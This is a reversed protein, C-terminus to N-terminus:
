KNRITIESNKDLKVETIKKDVIVKYPSSYVIEPTSFSYETLQVQITGDDPTKSNLVENGNKDFIRVPVNGLVKGDKDVVKVTLTWLVSYSHIQDTADIGFTDGTVINSEFRINEAVCGNWGKWGMRIPKFDIGASPSRTIQNRFIRTDRAGGYRSAVWVAPVNSTIRNDYFQGGVAGGGIYFASAENKLGLTKDNVGIDNNFIFNDGASSSYFMAWAMPIYDTFEPFDIGTVSIRNNYVKNGFCGGPDGPKANYDAIRIATTSYEEHGYECTPPSATIRIDNNFIEIGRHVFIEIGSGVEPIIRNEFIFSSDGMAMISYHNTVMQRNAFFNHHIKSFDGKFSLCGQGGFFESGSVESPKSGRLDVAYFEAGHRNIIFPNDVDFSSHTIVAQPVDVATSNIGSALVKINDLIVMVDEATSQIGWSLIGPTANRIIGNRITVSGKGRAVPLGPLPTHRKVDTTYDFFACHAREYLHDNHGMPHTEDIIGIGVDMAPRIDIYDVLCDTEAKIRIRYKGAPMRNLHAYVFGGGLRPSRSTVPCNVLASDAYETVCSVSKQSSDEVYVSEGEYGPQDRWM